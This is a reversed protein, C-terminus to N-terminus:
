EGIVSSGFKSAVPIVGVAAFQPLLLMPLNSIKWIANFSDENDLSVNGNSDTDVGSIQTIMYASIKENLQNTAFLALVICAMSLCQGTFKKLYRLGPGELGNRFMNPVAIPAFIAYVLIMIANSMCVFYAVVKAILGLINVLMCIIAKDMHRLFALNRDYGWNNLHTRMAEADFFPDSPSGTTTEGISVCANYMIKGFNAMGILIEPLCILIASAAFLRILAVILKDMSFMDRSIQSTLDVFFYLIMLSAGVGTFMSLGTSFFGDPEQLFALIANYLELMFNSINNVLGSGYILDLSGLIMDVM